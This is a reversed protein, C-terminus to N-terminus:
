SRNNCGDRRPYPCPTLFPRVCIKSVTTTESKWHTVKKIVRKVKTLSRTMSSSNAKEIRSGSAKSVPTKSSRTIMSSKAEKLEEIIEHFSPRETPDFVWCRKMFSIFSESHNDKEADFSTLYQSFDNAMIHEKLKKLNPAEDFIVLGTLVEYAILGFSYVDVKFPHEL